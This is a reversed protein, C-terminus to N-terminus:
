ESPLWGQEKILKVVEEYDDENDTTNDIGNGLQSLHKTNKYYHGMRWIAWKEDHNVVVQLHLHKKEDEDLTELISLREADTAFYVKAGEYDLDYVEM